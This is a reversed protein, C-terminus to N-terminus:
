VVQPEPPATPTRLPSGWWSGEKVGTQWSGEILRVHMWSSPFLSFLSHFSISGARKSATAENLPVQSILKIPQCWRQAELPGRGRRGERRERRKEERRKEERRKEERRKEERKGQKWAIGAFIFNASYTRVRLGAFIYTLNKKEVVFKSFNANCWKSVLGFLQTFCWLLGCWELGDIFCFFHLLFADESSFFQMNTPFFGDLM